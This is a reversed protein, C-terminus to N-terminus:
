GLVAVNWPGVAEVHVTVRAVIHVHAPFAEDPLLLRDSDIDFGRILTDNEYLRYNLGDVEDGDASGEQAPVELADFFTKIRNDLDGDRKLLAGPEEQRLFLIDLSCTLDLSKRVLPMYKHGHREFPALLDVYGKQVQEPPDFSYYQHFPSDGIEMVHLDPGPVRANWRLRKLANSVQWLRALQPVIQARIAKRDEARRGRGGAQTSPLPGRYVLYFDMLDFPCSSNQVIYYAQDRKM